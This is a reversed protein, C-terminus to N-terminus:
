FGSTTELRRAEGVDLRREADVRVDERSVVLVAGHGNAHGDALGPRARPSLTNRTLEADQPRKRCRQRGSEQLGYSGLCAPLVWYKCQTRRLNRDTPNDLDSAFRTLPKLLTTITSGLPISGRVEQSGALREGLQAIAGCTARDRMRLRCYIVGALGTLCTGRCLDFGSGAQEPRGGGANM